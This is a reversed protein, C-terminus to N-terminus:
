SLTAYDLPVFAASYARQVQRARRECTLTPCEATASPVLAESQSFGPVARAEHHTRICVMRHCMRWM